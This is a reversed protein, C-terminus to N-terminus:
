SGESHPPRRPSTPLHVAKNHLWGCCLTIATDCADSTHFTAGFRVRRQISLAVHSTQYLVVGVVGVASISIVNAAITLM